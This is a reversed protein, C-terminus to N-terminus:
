HAKMAAVIVQFIFWWFPAGVVVGILINRMSKGLDMADSIDDVTAAKGIVEEDNPLNCPRTYLNVTKGRVSVVWRMEPDGKDNLFTIPFADESKEWGKSDWTNILSNPRDKVKGVDQLTHVRGDNDIDQVRLVPVSKGRLKFLWQDILKM